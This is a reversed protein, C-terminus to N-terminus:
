FGIKIVIIFKVMQQIQSLYIESIKNRSLIENELGFKKRVLELKEKMKQKYFNYEQMLSTIQSKDRLADIPIIKNTTVKGVISNSQVRNINSSNSRRIM